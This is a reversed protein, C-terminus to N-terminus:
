ESPTLSTAYFEIEWEEYFCEASASDIFDNIYCYIGYNATLCENNSCSLEVGEECGDFFEPVVVGIKCIPCEM